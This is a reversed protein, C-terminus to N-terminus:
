IRRSFIFDFVEPLVDARQMAVFNVELQQLDFVAANVISHLRNGRSKASEEKGAKRDM